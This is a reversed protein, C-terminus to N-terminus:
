IAPEYKPRGNRVLRRFTNRANPPAVVYRFKRGSPKRVYLPEEDDRRLHDGAAPAPTEAESPSAPIGAETTTDTEEKMPAPFQEREAAVGNAPVPNSGGERRELLPERNIRLTEGGAQPVIEKISINVALAHATVEDVSPASPVSTVEACTGVAEAPIGTSEVAQRVVPPVPKPEPQPPTTPRPHDIAKVAFGARLPDVFPALLQGALALLDLIGYTTRM